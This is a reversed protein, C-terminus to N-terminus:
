ENIGTRENRNGLDLERLKNVLELDLIKNALASEKIRKITEQESEMLKSIKEKVIEIAKQLKYIVSSEDINKALEELKAKETHLCSDELEKMDDGLTTTEELADLQNVDLQSLSYPEHREKENDYMSNEKEPSYVAMSDNVNEMAKDTKFHEM